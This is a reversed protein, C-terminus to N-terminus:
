VASVALIGSNRRAAWVLARALSVCSAASAGVGSGALLSGSFTIRIGAGTLDIEMVELIRNVSEVQQARKKAKYGPVAPRQDHVVWGEGEVTEVTAVTEYPLAAVIAPVERLVLQDGILITKGFGAGTGM